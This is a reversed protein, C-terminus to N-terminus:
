KPKPTEPLPKSQPHMQRNFIAPDFEDLPEPMEPEAPKKEPEPETTQAFAPQIKEATNSPKKEVALVPLVKEVPVPPMSPVPKLDTLPQHSVTLKVWDELSKFAASQRGKLPAQGTSGHASVAKILFPSMTPDGVNLQGLVAALNNQVSSTDTLGIEYVRHLQFKGSKETNHCNVCTNMLIPQIRTAFLNLSEASVALPLEKPKAPTSPTPTAGPQTATRAMQEFHQLLRRSDVHEPRLRVAARTEELAETSLGQLHCWKALRLREDPDNLNHQTALFKYAEQKTDCLRLVQSAPVWTEGISRKVCYREGVREIDGELTRESDLVLIKGRTPPADQAPLLGSVMLLLPLAYKM